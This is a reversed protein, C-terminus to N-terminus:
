GVLGELRDVLGSLVEFTKEVPAPTTLDVGALNLADLPYLSGGAKLFDLYKDAAGNQSNLIGDALAHAGSIGTAYQYVYFNAYMHGFQAWTIGIRDKDFEVEEGYGEKFLDAMLGNLMDGTTPQGNEVRTHMELEFRALTPMIFFYRHFNSMAEEILAIQFDRDTQTKFLHARTLAQNFNSAVEAVFLSYRSYVFPQDRRTFYSHLSHGLEHALTSMAFLNDNYSMMIFPHTGKVGSSFAGQRKGKNVARDVWREELCGRRLIEVYEEGLPAMGESIWDVAQEYPVVPTKATLPAKIDYVHFNDYGLAKQRIAWYRHWTPLNAKFVDILNHFVEVPINNPALSAHLSSEYGRARMRFVDGKVQATLINALTNKVDLYGDAYSQWGTRRVERDEHQVISDISSQGVEHENGDSDTASAFKIESQTLASYIQNPMGIPDSVMAMMEEVEQSRLHDKQNELRDLYHALYGMDENEQVWQRLTPIGIEMMEPEAFATAASYQAFVGRVQGALAAAQMNSTDVSYKSSAYVFLKGLITASEEIMNMYALITSPGESLKGQFGSLQPLYGKLTELGEKWADDNPFISEVDWTQEVPIESRPPLTTNKSM